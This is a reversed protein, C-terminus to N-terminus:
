HRFKPCGEHKRIELQEGPQLKVDDTISYNKVVVGNKTVSQYDFPSKFQCIYECFYKRDRDDAAFDSYANELGFNKFLSGMHNLYVEFGRLQDPTKPPVVQLHLNPHRKTPPHRLLVFEVESLMGFAKWVYLQYVAAQMESALEKKSFKEKQSKYDRIKAIDGYFSLDDIFGKLIATTLELKFEHEPPFTRTAGDNYFNTHRLAVLVMMDIDDILSQAIKHKNQWMKVLRTFPTGSLSGSALIIDYYKRGRPRKLCEFISHCISGVITKPHTTEPLREIENLFFKYSCKHLSKIRSASVRIQGAFKNESM